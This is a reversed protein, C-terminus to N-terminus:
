SDSWEESEQLQRLFQRNFCRSLYNADFDGFLVKCLVLKLYSFFAMHKTFNKLTTELSHHRILWKFKEILSCGKADVMCNIQTFDSFLSEYLCGPLQKNKCNYTGSYPQTSVVTYYGEGFNQEGAASIAAISITNRSSSSSTSRFFEESKRGCVELSLLPASSQLPPPPSLQQLLAGGGPAGSIPNKLLDAFGAIITLPPELTTTVGFMYHIGGTTNIITLISSESTSRYLAVAFAANQAFVVTYQTGSLSFRALPFVTGTAVFESQIQWGSPTSLYFFQFEVFRITGNLGERSCPFIARYAPSTPQLSNTIPILVGDCVLQNNTIRAVSSM